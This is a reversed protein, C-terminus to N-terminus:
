YYVIHRAVLGCGFTMKTRPSGSPVRAVKFAWLKTHLGGISTLDLSFNYGEDLAKWRYTDRWRYVLFDFRNKVKLPWSDFQWNSERGKKQGYNINWSGLHTMHAWKLCKCELIKRIIYSVKQELPNQGRFNSELYKFTWRSELEGLPLESSLTFTWERVSKWVGPLMFHSDWSWKQGVGKCARAKTM